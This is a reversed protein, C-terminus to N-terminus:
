RELMEKERPRRKAAVSDCRRGAALLPSVTQDITSEISQCPPQPLRSMPAPSTAAGASLLYPLGSHVAPRSDSCFIDIPQALQAIRSGRILRGGVDGRAHHALQQEGAGLDFGSLTRGPQSVAV